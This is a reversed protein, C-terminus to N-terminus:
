CFNNERLFDITIGSDRHKYGIGLEYRSQLLRETYKGLIDCELNVIDGVKKSALITVDVTHPILSVKFGYGTLEAVTLSTGDVAISGKNVIYRMISSDCSIGLWLANGEKKKMIITGTGDIHGTVFHGGLRGDAKLARELNVKSGSRLTLLSTKRLTEPMVDAVFGNEKIDSATLCVGNTSISDGVHIDDLIKECEINLKISNEGDKVEKVKGIEEVIGTFM